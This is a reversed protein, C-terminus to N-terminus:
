RNADELFEEVFSILTGEDYEPVDLGLKETDGKDVLYEFPDMGEAAKVAYVMSNGIMRFCYYHDGYLGNQLYLLYFDETSNKWAETVTDHGEKKVIGIMDEYAYELRENANEYTLLYIGDVPDDNNIDVAHQELVAHRSPNKERTYDLLEYRRFLTQDSAFDEFWSTSVSNRNEEDFEELDIEKGAQHIFFFGVGAILIMVVAIVAIWVPKKKKSAVPAAAYNQIKAAAEQKTGCNPCFSVNDEIKTGCNKCYM